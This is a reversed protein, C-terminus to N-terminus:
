LKKYETINTLYKKIAEYDKINLNYMDINLAQLDNIISKFNTYDNTNSLYKIISSNTPIFSELLTNYKEISNISDVDDISFNAISNFLKNNHINDHSNLYDNFREQELIYKNINTENNLLEFYNLFNTSLNSKDYINTYELNIKSFNFIPLPLTIFSIITMKDNQTLTKLNYIKKNNIYDSDLMKLGENFVQTSFRNKSIENNNYM